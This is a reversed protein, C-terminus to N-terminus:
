SIDQSHYVPHPSWDHVIKELGTVAVTPNSHAAPHIFDALHRDLCYNLNLQPYPRDGHRWPSPKSGFWWESSQTSCFCAFIEPSRLLLL